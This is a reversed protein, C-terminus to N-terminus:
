FNFYDDINNSDLIDLDEESEKSKIENNKEIIGNDENNLENSYYKVYNKATHMYIQIYDQGENEDKILLLSDEFEKSIFYNSLLEKYKMNKIIDFGSKYSIDPNNELYELTEKNKEIRLKDIKINKYEEPNSIEKSFDKELIDKYNLELCRENLDKTNNQIFSQPLFDFIKLSGVKKLNKNITNRLAKIFRSKIKKRIIDGRYKRKKKIRVKRGNNDRIYKKTTFKMLYLNNLFENNDNINSMEEGFKDERTSCKLGFSETTFFNIKPNLSDFIEDNNRCTLNIIGKGSKFPFCKDYCNVEEIPKQKKKYPGRKKGLRCNSVKKEEKSNDSIKNKPSNEIRIKIINSKAPYFYNNQTKKNIAKSKLKNEYIKQSDKPNQSNEDNNKKDINNIDLDDIYKNEDMPLLLEKQNFSTDGFILRLINSKDKIRNNKKKNMESKTMPNQNPSKNENQFNKTKINIHSKDEHIYQNNISNIYKQTNSEFLNKTRFFECDEQSFIEPNNSKINCLTSFSNM